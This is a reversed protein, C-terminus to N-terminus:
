REVLVMRKSIVHRPWGWWWGHLDRGGRGGGPRRREEEETREGGGRGDGTVAVEEEVVMLRRRGEVEAVAVTRRRARVRGRVRRDLGGESAPPGKEPSSPSPKKPGPPPPPPPPPPPHHHFRPDPDPAPHSSEDPSGSTGAGRLDAASAASPTTYSSMHRMASELQVWNATRLSAPRRAARTAASRKTGVTQQPNPPARM